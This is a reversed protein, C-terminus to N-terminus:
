LIKDLKIEALRKRDKALIFSFEFEFDEKKITSELLVEKIFSLDEALM